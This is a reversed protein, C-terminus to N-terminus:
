SWLALIDLLQPLLRDFLVHLVLALAGLLVLEMIRPAEGDCLETSMKSLM